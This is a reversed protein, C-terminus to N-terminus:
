EAPMPKTQSRALTTPIRTRWADIPRVVAMHLAVSAVATLAIVVLSLNVDGAPWFYVVLPYHVVYIPYSLEGISRDWSAKRTFHYFPILFVAFTALLVDDHVYRRMYILTGTIVVASIAVVAAPLRVADLFPKVACWVWYGLMGSLFLWFFNIPSRLLIPSNKDLTMTLWVHVGLAVVVTVLIARWKRAVLPALAYFTLEVGVSWMHPMGSVSALLHNTRANMSLALGEKTPLAFWLTDHGFLTLTAFYFYVKTWIDAPFAPFPRLFSTAFLLVIIYTPWLRLYRALYFRIPNPETYKENLVLAMYFGSIIFFIEVAFHGATFPLNLKCHILVVCIALYVRVLGM